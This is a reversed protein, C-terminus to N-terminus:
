VSSSNRKGKYINSFFGPKREITEVGEIELQKSTKRFYIRKIEFVIEELEKTDKFTFLVENKVKSSETQVLALTCPSTSFLKIKKLYSLPLVWKEKAPHIPYGKTAKINYVKETSFALCRIQSRGKQNEKTCFYHRQYVENGRMYILEFHPQWFNRLVIRLVSIWEECIFQSPALYSRKEQFNTLRTSVVKSKQIPKYYYIDFREPSELSQEISHIEKLEKSWVVSFTDPVIKYYHTTTVLLLVNKEKKKKQFLQHCIYKAAPDISKIAKEFSAPCPWSQESSHVDM